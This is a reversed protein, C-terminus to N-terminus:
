HRGEQLDKFNQEEEISSCMVHEALDLINRYSNLSNTFHKLKEWVFMAHLNQNMLVTFEQYWILICKKSTWYWDTLLLKNYIFRKQTKYQQLKFENWLSSM